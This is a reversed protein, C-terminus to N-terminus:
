GVQGTRPLLIQSMAQANSGEQRVIPQFEAGGGVPPSGPGPPSGQATPTGAQDEFLNPQAQQEANLRAGDGTQGQAQMAQQQASQAQIAQFLQLASAFSIVDGPFLRMNSREKEITALMQEPNEIGVMDMAEVLPLLKANVLQIANQANEISDRPTIEPPIIKWREFGKIFDGVKIQDAEVGPQQESRTAVNATPNKQKLMYGWFTLLQTLGRYLRKRKPDLRNIAAQVQVATARASTDAGPLAGFMIEPLGTIRHAEARYEDILQSIPFNNVPRLIPRIENGGGPNAVEDDRPILGEPASDANEGVVQYAVGTNDAVIQAFHSLARNLGMQITTLLEVTSVGEPSGPEHENEIPIYPVEPLEEHVTPGEAVVGQVIIANYIKGDSHRYWYDWVNVQKNEYDTMHRGTPLTRSTLGDQTTKQNLPDAHDTHIAVELPKDRGPNKIDIGPFRRIAELPSISYEYFTWDIVSFDSSGYGIMLNQPQEIVYVDPRAEAENWFPKLCGLGYISKVRNLDSMWVDWESLELFRGYLDEVIEAKLRSDDDKSDPINTVRPLISLTRAEVDVFAQVINSTIHMKQPRLARDEPWQDGGPPAYFKHYIEYRAKREAALSEAGAYRSVALRACEAKTMLDASIAEIEDEM